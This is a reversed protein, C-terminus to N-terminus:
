LADLRFAALLESTTLPFASFLCASDSASPSVFSRWAGSRANASLSALRDGGFLTSRVAILLATFRVLARAGQASIRM